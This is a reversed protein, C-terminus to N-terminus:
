ARKLLQVRELLHELFKAKALQKEHGGLVVRKSASAFTSLKQTDISQLTELAWSDRPNDQLMKRLVWLAKKKFGQRIYLEAITKTAFAPNEVENDANDVIAQEQLQGTLHEMRYDQIDGQSTGFDSSARAIFATNIQSLHSNEINELGELAKAAEQDQPFLVLLRSLAEIAKKNQGLRLYVDVRLKLARYNEPNNILINALEELCSAFKKLDFFCYARLLNARSFNPHHKLGEDCIELAQAYMGHSRYAEALKVFALTHPNNQFERLLEVLRIDKSLGYQYKDADM